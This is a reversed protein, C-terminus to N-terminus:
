KNNESLEKLEKLLGQNVKKKQLKQVVLEFNNQLLKKDIM